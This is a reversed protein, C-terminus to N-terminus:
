HGKPFRVADLPDTGAKLEEKDSWGDGDDDNDANDGIGDGDTDHWESADFPFADWPIANATLYGDGDIDPEECDPTGNGNRDDGVGDGGIDADLVDGIRDADADAWEEPMLPFADASNVHGDNDNDGDRQNPIGDGDIDPAQGATILLAIDVDFAPATLELPGNTVAITGLISADTPAYWYAAGSVPSTLALVLNTVDGRAHDWIHVPPGNTSVLRSCAACGYHHAYVALRNHSSLGYLRVANTAAGATAPTFMTVDADLLDSFGRLAKVYQREEPGIWLNMFHGDKAYSTEWFVVHLENFLAAWLRVRMRRASGPDWVGGNGQQVMAMRQTTDMWLGNGQEGVIVARGLSVYNSRWETVWQDSRLEPESWYFHPAEIDLEAIKETVGTVGDREYHKVREPSTWSTTVPRKYPDLSRLYPIVDAYWSDPANRENWLEWIDVYAGWRDVSYKVLRKAKTLERPDGKDPDYGRSFGFIGYMVRMDYTRVMALMEDIMRAQEWRVHDLSYEGTDPTEFLQPTCNCPSFRFLDFGAQAHRRFSFDCNLPSMSPGRACLAGPPPKPRTDANDMRFPGEMGSAYLMSGLHKADGMGDQYGIPFYPTGDDFVLRLPNDPNVRVNGHRPVRGEVVEFSGTGAAITVGLASFSYTYTWSGTRAPAFRAKWMDAPTCPWVAVRERRQKLDREIIVPTQPQSSGYFFGGVTAAETGPGAFTVTIEVDWLPNSVPGPWHFSLEFVQYLALLDTNRSVHVQEAEAAAASLFLSLSIVSVLCHCHAHM